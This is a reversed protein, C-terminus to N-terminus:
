IGEFPCKPVLTPITAHCWIPVPSDTLWRKVKKANSIRIAMYICGSKKFRREPLVVVRMASQATPAVRIVVILHRIASKTIHHEGVRRGVSHAAVERELREFDGILREVRIGVHM